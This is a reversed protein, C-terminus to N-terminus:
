RHIVFARRWDRAFSDPDTVRRELLGFLSLWNVDTGALRGITILDAMSWPEPDIGLLGFEPPERDAQDQYFNMGAVFANMLARSRAPMAAVVADAAHGFDLMRLATDIDETLPGAMESLRGQSIRKLVALQGGRLHQHVMGLTFFLDRDTRAEIYPVQFANWRISVPQSLPLNETPFAALRQDRSLKAPALASCATLMVALISVSALRALLTNRM